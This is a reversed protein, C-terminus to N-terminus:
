AGQEEPHRHRGGTPTGAELAPRPDWNPVTPCVVQTPTVSDPQTSLVIPGTMTTDQQPDLPTPPAGEPPEERNVDLGPVGAKDLRDHVERLTRDATDVADRGDAQVARIVLSGWVVFALMATLGVWWAVHRILEWDPTM